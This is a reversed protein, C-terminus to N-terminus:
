VLFWNPRHVEFLNRWGDSIGSVVNDCVVTILFEEKPITSPENRLHRLQLVFRHAQLFDLRVQLVLHWRPLFHKLLYCDNNRCISLVHECMCYNPASAWKM